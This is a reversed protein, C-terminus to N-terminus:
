PGVGRKIDYGGKSQADKSEIARRDYEDVIQKPVAADIGIHRMTRESPFLPLIGFEQNRPSWKTGFLFEVLSVTRFFQLAEFLLVVVIGITVLISLVAACWLAWHIISEWRERAIHAPTRQSHHEATLTHSTM